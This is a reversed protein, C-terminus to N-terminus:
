SGAHARDASLGPHQSQMSQFRPLQTVRDLWAVVAPFPALEIGSEEATHTYAYLAIDALTPQAGALWSQRALQKDMVDLAAEGRVRLAELESRRPHDPPLFQRIFRAVAIAPEHTYQEFFLWQFMSAAEFRPAPVWDTAAGFYWLIANSEALVRGDGLAVAPVKGNPNISLFEPTRSAGTLIDIEQWRYDIDLLALLLTVKYCNGSGSMGYVTPTM